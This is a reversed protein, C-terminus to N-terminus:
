LQGVPKSLLFEKKVIMEKLRQALMNAMHRNSQRLKIPIDIENIKIVGLKGSFAEDSCLSICSGCNFCRSKDIGEDVSFAETPCKEEVICDGHHVCKEDDFTIKLSKKTWVDGYNTNMFPTRDNIDAVPLLVNEDLIKLNLLINEDLIPIPVAISTICEPGFSTKFGGMFEPNMSFMDAIVSLNPKAKSRTGKGIIYGISGNVLIRTGIGIAKLDPDNELPNIEGCGSVTVEKNPGMLGLVSFISKVEDNRTNVFASYNKFCVRTTLIRAFDLNDLKINNKIIRSDNTEVKVDIGKGEVLDRFLHGAGYETPRSVSHTTGYVILDVLGLRENPCPGPLAPIDNLWVMNARDFEGKESVPVTLIAATGSMIGCTATTVVDVKNIDKGERVRNKFEEATLIVAKGREIKENIEEVSRM